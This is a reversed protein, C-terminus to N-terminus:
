FKQTLLILITINTETFSLSKDAVMELVGSQSLDAMTPHRNNRGEAARNIQSLALVPVKLDGAM